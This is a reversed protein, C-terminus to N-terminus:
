GVSLGGELVRDLPPAALKGDMVVYALSDAGPPSFVVAEAQFAPSPGSVPGTVKTAYRSTRWAPVRKGDIRLATKEVTIRAPDTVLGIDVREYKSKLDGLFEKAAKEVEEPSGAVAKGGPFEVAGVYLLGHTGGAALNTIYQVIVGDGALSTPFRSNRPCQV